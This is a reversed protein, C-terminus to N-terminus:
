FMPAIQFPYPPPSERSRVSPHVSLRGSFVSTYESFKPAELLNTLLYVSLYFQATNKMDICIFPYSRTSGLKM